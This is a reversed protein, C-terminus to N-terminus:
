VDYDPHTLVFPENATSAIADIMLQFLQREGCAFHGATPVPYIGKSHTSFTEKPILPGLNTFTTLADPNVYLSEDLHVSYFGKIDKVFSQDDVLEFDLEGVKSAYFFRLQDM